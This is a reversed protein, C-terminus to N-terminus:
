PLPRNLVQPEPEAPAGLPQEAPDVPRGRRVVRPLPWAPRRLRTSGLPGLPAATLSIPESLRLWHTIICVDRPWAVPIVPAHVRRPATTASCGPLGPRPRWPTAPVNPHADPGPWQRPLGAPSRIPRRRQGRQAPEAQGAGGGPVAAVALPLRQEGVLLLAARGMPLRRRQRLWRRPRGRGCAAGLTHGPPSRGPPCAACPEVSPTGVPLRLGPSELAGRQNQAHGAAQGSTRAGPGNAAAPRLARAHASARAGPLERM